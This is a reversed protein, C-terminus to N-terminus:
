LCQRASKGFGLWTGLRRVLPVLPPFGFRSTDCHSPSQDMPFLPRGLRIQALAGGVFSALALLIWETM